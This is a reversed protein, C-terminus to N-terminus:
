GGLTELRHSSACLPEPAAPLAAQVALCKRSEELPEWVTMPVFNFRPGPASQRSHGRM